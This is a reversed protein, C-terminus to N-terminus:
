RCRLTEDLLAPPHPTRFEYTKERSYNLFEPIIRNLRESERNVISVLQKEDEELRLWARWSEV